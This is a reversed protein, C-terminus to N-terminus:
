TVEAGRELGGGCKGKVREGLFGVRFSREREGTNKRSITLSRNQHLLPDM